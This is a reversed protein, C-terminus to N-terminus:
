PRIGDWRSDHWTVVAKCSCPRPRFNSVRCGPGLVGSPLRTTTPGCRLGEYSPAQRLCGMAWCSTASARRITHRTCSHIQERYLYEELWVHRINSAGPTRTHDDSLDDTCTWGWDVSTESAKGSSWKRGNALSSLHRWRLIGWRCGGPWDSNAVARSWCTSSVQLDGASCWHCAGGHDICVDLNGVLQSHYVAKPMAPTQTEGCCGISAIPTQWNTPGELYHSGCYGCCALM